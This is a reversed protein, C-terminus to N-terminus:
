KVRRNWAAIAEEETFSNVTKTGCEICHVYYMDDVKRQLAVGGCFPCPMLKEKYELALWHFACSAESTEFEKLPCSYCTQMDCFEKFEKAREKATKFKEENTM